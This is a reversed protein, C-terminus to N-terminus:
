ESLVNNLEISCFTLIVLPRTSWLGCRDSRESECMLQVKIKLKRDPDPDPYNVPSVGFRCDSM